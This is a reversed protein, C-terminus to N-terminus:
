PGAGMIMEHHPRAATPTQIDVTKLWGDGGYGEYVIAYVNGAIHLLQCQLAYTDDFEFEDIRTATISGDAAIQFTKLWGDGDDGSYAIAVIGSGIHIISPNQGSAADFEIAHISGEDIQGAANIPVTLLQGHTDTESYAIAYINGTVHCIDPRAQCVASFDLEDYGTDSIIGLATVSFTKLFGHYTDTVYLCAFVGSSVELINSGPQATDHLLLDDEEPETIGGDPDIRYTRLETDHNSSEFELLIMNSAVRILAHGTVDSTAFGYFDEVADPIAGTSSIDVTLFIPAHAASHGVIAYIDGTVHIIKSNEPRSYPLQLEDERSQTITGADSIVITFLQHYTDDDEYVIAYVNGAIHIINPTLGGVTDFEYYSLISGIDGNAM